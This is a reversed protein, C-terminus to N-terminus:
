EPLFPRDLHVQCSKSFRTIIRRTTAEQQMMIRIWVQKKSTVM